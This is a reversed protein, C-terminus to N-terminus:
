EGVEKDKFFQEMLVLSNASKTILAMLINPAGDIFTLEKTSVEPAKALIGSLTLFDVSWFFMNYLSPLLKHSDTSNYSTKHYSKLISLFYIVINRAFEKLNASLALKLDLLEEVSNVYVDPSEFYDDALTNYVKVLNILNMIMLPDTVDECNLAIKIIAVKDDLSLSKIDLMTKGDTLYDKIVDETVSTPVIRTFEDM